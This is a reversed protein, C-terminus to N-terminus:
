IHDLMSKLHFILSKASIRNYALTVSLEEREGKIFDGGWDGSEQYSFNEIICTNNLISIIKIYDV